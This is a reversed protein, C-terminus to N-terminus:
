EGYAIYNIRLTTSPESKISFYSSTWNTDNIQLASGGPNGVCAVVHFCSKSFAQSFAVAAIGDSGTKIVGTGVTTKIDGHSIFGSSAGLTSELGLNKRADATTQAGTGGRVVPVSGLLNGKSDQGLGDYLEDFNNNIKNFASRAADGSGDNANAGINVTQKAM